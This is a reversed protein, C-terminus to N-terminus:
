RWGYYDAIDAVLERAPAARLLEDKLYLVVTHAKAPDLDSIAPKGAGGFTFRFPREVPSEDPRRAQDWHKTRVFYAVIGRMEDTSVQAKRSTTRRLHRTAAHLARSDTYLLVPPGSEDRPGTYTLALWTPAPPRKGPAAGAPDPVILCLGTLGILM